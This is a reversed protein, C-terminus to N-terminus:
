QAGERLKELGVAEVLQARRSETISTAVLFSDVPAAALLLAPLPEFGDRLAIRLLLLGAALLLGAVVNSAHGLMAAHLGASSLALV